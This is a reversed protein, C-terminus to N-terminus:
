WEGANGAREVLQDVTRAHARYGAAKEPDNDANAVDINAALYLRLNQIETATPAPM